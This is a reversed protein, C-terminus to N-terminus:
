LVEGGSPCRRVPRPAREARLGAERHPTLWPEVSGCGSCWVVLPDHPDALAPGLCPPVKPSRADAATAFWRRLPLGTHEIIRVKHCASARTVKWQPVLEIAMWRYGGDIEEWASFYCLTLARALAHWENMEM